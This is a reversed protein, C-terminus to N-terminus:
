RRRAANPPPCTSPRVEAARHRSLNYRIGGAPPEPASCLWRQVDPDTLARAAPMADESLTTLYRTDLRGTRDFRAVNRRAVLADPNVANLAFLLVLATIGAGPLLWARRRHVGALTVGVLVFVAAVWGAFVASVLRLTTLGFAREYLGLRRLAVGVIVLTLAVAAEALLTFRLSPGTVARLVLLVALTITAAALLQFFGNRAYEAYTLGKTELVHRAGGLAAVVQAVAFVTYLAVLAGLITLSELAGLRPAVACVAQTRTSMCALLGTMTWAGAILLFAHLGIDGAGVHLDFFSAFIPDAAGLLLGVVVLLPAALLLGRGVAAARPRSARSRDPDRHEYLWAPAGLLRELAVGLRRAAARFSLDFPDGAQGYTAGMVLLGVVAVIDLAILWPAARLPLWAAFLPAALVFPWARWNTCRGSALLGATVAGVLIAGGVGGFGRGTVDALVAAVGLAAWLRRDLTPEAAADLILSM